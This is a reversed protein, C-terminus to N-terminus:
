APSDTFAPEIRERGVLRRAYVLCARIDDAELFPYHELIAEHTAGSALMGLIHEVAIRRGRVIPKGGFIQPNVTIRKLLEAENMALDPVFIDGAIRRRGMQGTWAFRRQRV